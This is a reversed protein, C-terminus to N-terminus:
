QDRSLGAGGRRDAQKAANTRTAASESAAVEGHRHLERESCLARPTVSQARAIKRRYEHEGRLLEREARRQGRWSGADGRRETADGHAASESAAPECHRHCSKSAACHMRHRGHRVHDNRRHEHTGRGSERESRQQRRSSSAGGRREAAGGRKDACRSNRKGGVRWEPPMEHESRFARPTAWTAPARQTPARASRSWIRARGTASRPELWRRRLARSRRRAQGRLPTRARQRSAM